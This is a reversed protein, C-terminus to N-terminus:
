SILTFNNFRRTPLTTVHLRCSHCLFLQNWASVSPPFCRLPAEECRQSLKWSSKFRTHGKLSLMWDLTLNQKSIMAIECIDLETRAFIVSTGSQSLNINNNGDLASKNM